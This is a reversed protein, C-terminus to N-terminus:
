KKKFIDELRPRNADPTPTVTVDKPQGMNNQVDNIVNQYSDTRRKMDARIIKAANYIQGLTANRDLLHDVEKRASDSLVGSGSGTMQSLVKGVEVTAVHRAAQMAALDNSGLGKDQIARLPMNLLPSGSDSVKKMTELFQDLNGGATQEAVRISGYTNKLNGLAKSDGKYAAKAEVMDHASMGSNRAFQDGEHIIRKKTDSGGMGFAPLEGTLAYKQGELKYDEETMVDSNKKTNEKANERANASQTILNLKIPETAKASRVATETRGLQDSADKVVAEAKGFDGVKLAQSVMNKTRKNLEPEKAPDIVADVNAAWDAPTMSKLGTTKAVEMDSKAKAGPTEAELKATEAQM